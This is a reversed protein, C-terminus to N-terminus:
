TIGRVVRCPQPSCRSFCCAFWSDSVAGSALDVRSRRATKSRPLSIRRDELEPCRPISGRRCAMGGPNAALFALFGRIDLVQSTQLRESFV